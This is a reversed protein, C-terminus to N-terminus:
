SLEGQLDQSAELRWQAARRVAQRSVFAAGLAESFAHVAGLYVKPTIRVAAAALRPAMALNEDRLINQGAVSLFQSPPIQAQLIQPSIPRPCDSAFTRNV